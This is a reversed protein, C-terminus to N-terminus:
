LRGTLERMGTFLLTSNTSQSGGPLHNELVPADGGTLIVQTQEGLTERMTNVIGTVAVRYGERTGALVAAETSRAFITDHDAPQLMDVRDTNETLMSVLLRRGPFIAGGLHAGKEDVADVTVATGADVVIFPAKYLHFAGLM